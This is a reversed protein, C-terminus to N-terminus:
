PKEEIKLDYFEVGKSPCPETNLVKPKCNPKHYIHLVVKDGQRLHSLLIVFASSHIDDPARKGNLLVSDVCFANGTDDFPNQIYVDKGCYNGELVITQGKSVYSLAILGLLIMWRM